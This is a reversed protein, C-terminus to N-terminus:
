NWLISMSSALRVRQGTMLVEQLLMQTYFCNNSSIHGKVNVLSVKVKVRTGRSRKGGPCMNFVSFTLHNKVYIYLKKDLSNQNQLLRSSACGHM